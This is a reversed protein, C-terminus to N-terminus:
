LEALIKQVDEVLGPMVDCPGCDAVRVLAESLPMKEVVSMAAAAIAPSRSMGASCAVLTRAKSSILSVLTEIAAQILFGANGESDHIPFRCYCIDRPFVIPPEQIALDVIATIELDLVARVDRADRANGIWLVDLLVNRM